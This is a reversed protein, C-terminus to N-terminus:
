WSLNPEPGGDFSLIFYVFKLDQEYRHIKNTYQGGRRSKGHGVRAQWYITDTCTYLRVIISLRVLPNGKSTAQVPGSGWSDWPLDSLDLRCAKRLGNRSIVM